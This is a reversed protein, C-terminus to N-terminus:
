RKCKYLKTQKDQEDCDILGDLHLLKLLNAVRRPNMIMKKALAKATIPRKHTNLYDLLLEQEKTLIREMEEKM